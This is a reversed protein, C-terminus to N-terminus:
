AIASVIPMMPAAVHVGPHVRREDRQEAQEREPAGRARVHLRAPESASAHPVPSGDM